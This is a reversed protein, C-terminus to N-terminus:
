DNKKFGYISILFLFIFILLINSAEAARWIAPDVHIQCKRGHIQMFQEPDRRVNEYFQKRRENRKVSDIMQSRILKEQKRAEHWM